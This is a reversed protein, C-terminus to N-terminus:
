SAGPFQKGGYKWVPYEGEKETENYNEILLVGGVMNSPANSGAAGLTVSPYEGAGEVTFDGLPNITDAQSFAGEFDTLVKLTTKLATEVKTIIGATFSNIGLKATVASM